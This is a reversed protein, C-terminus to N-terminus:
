RGDGRSTSAGILRAWTTSVLHLAVDNAGERWGNLVATNDCALAFPLVCQNVEAMLLM